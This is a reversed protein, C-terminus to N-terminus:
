VNRVVLVPLSASLIGNGQVSWHYKILALYLYFLCEIMSAITVCSENSM